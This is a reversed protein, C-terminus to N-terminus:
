KNEPKLVLITFYIYFTSYILNGTEYYEKIKMQFLVHSIRYIVHGQRILQTGVSYHFSYRLFNKM